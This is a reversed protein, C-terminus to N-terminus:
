GNKKGKEKKKQALLQKLVHQAMEPSLKGLMVDLETKEKARKPNYKRMEQVYGYVKELEDDTMEDIPRLFLKFLDDKKVDFEELADLTTKEKTKAKM